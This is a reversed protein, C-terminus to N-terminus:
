TQVDDKAKHEDKKDIHHGNFHRHGNLYGTLYLALRVMLATKVVRVIIKLVVVWVVIRSPTPGFGQAIADTWGELAVGAFAWAWFNGFRERVRFIFGAAISSAVADVVVLILLLNYLLLLWTNM